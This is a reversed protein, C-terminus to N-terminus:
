FVYKNGSLSNICVKIISYNGRSIYKDIYRKNECSTNYICDFIKEKECTNNILVAEGNTFVSLYTLTQGLLDNNTAYQEEILFSVNNNLSISKIILSCPNNNTILYLILRNNDLSSSYIMQNIHPTKNPTIISLYGISNNNIIKKIEKFSLENCAM